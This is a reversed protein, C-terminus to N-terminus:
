RYEAATQQTHTGRGEEQQAPCCSSLILCSVVVFYVCFLPSTDDYIRVGHDFSLSAVSCCISSCGYTCIYTSRHLFIFLFLYLMFLMIIYILGPFSPSSSRILRPTPWGGRRSGGLCPWTRRTTRWFRSRSPIGPFWARSDKNNKTTSPTKNKRSVRASHPHHAHM